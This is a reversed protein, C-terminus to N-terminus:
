KVRQGTSHSALRPCKWRGNWQVQVDESFSQTYRHDRPWVHRCDRELFIPNPVTERNATALAICYSCNADMENAFLKRVSIIERCLM